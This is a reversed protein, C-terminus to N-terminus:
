CNLSAMLALAGLPPNLLQNAQAQTLSGDSVLSNVLNVFAGLQNCARKTDGANLGKLAGMLQSDLSDAKGPVIMGNARLSNIQNILLQIAQQPTPVSLISTTNRAGGEPNRSDTGTLTLTYNGPLTNATTITLTSTFSPTSGTPSYASTAGAPLGTVSLSVQPLGTSTSGPVLTVSVTLSNSGTPLVLLTSPATVTFDYVHLGISGSRTGGSPATARVVPAFDGLSTAGATITLQSTAGFFTPVVSSSSFSYSADGPLGSPISLPISPIGTISSGPLLSATITYQAKSGRLLTEDPTAALRFDYAHLNATTSHALTGDISNINLSYDGLGGFNSTFVNLTTTFGSSTPTVPNTTFSYTGGTPLGTVSLSVVDSPGTTTTLTVSYSTSDGSLVTSDSPAAFISYDFSSETFLIGSSSTSCSLLNLNNTEGTQGNNVCPAPTIANGNSDSIATQVTISTGTNFQAQSGNIYGVVNFEALTWQQYLNLFAAPQSNTYCSGGSVCLQAQDAGGVNATGTLTLQSLNTVPENPTPTANTNFYCDGATTPGFWAGSAGSPIPLSGCSGGGLYATSYGLLWFEIWVGQFGSPKNDFLFQEWGTTPNGNFTVPFGIQANVQLSYGDTGAGGSTCFPPPGVCVDNENTLGSVSPFTGVASGIIKGATSQAVYDNGNGVIANGTSHTAPV